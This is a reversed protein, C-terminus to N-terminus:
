VHRHNFRHFQQGDFWCAGGDRTGFWLRDQSDLFIAMVQNGCLGSIRNFTQFEDGDFRSAGSDWTGFWLYGDRDEAIHEVQIGALGEALSYTRWTGKTSQTTHDTPLQDIPGKQSGFEQIESVAMGTVGLRNLAEKVKELANPRVVCKLLKM